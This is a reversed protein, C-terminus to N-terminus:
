GAYTAFLDMVQQRSYSGTHMMLIIGNKGIVVTTPFSDLGFGERLKVTDRMMPFSLGMDNKLQTIAATSDFPTVTLLQVTSGYVGYAEEFYPFEAKCPQCDVYWFNLIVANKNQLLQSLTHTQGDTDTLTFDGMVSGTKYQAQSHDAPDIVPISTLTINATLSRFTYSDRCDYGAPLTSLIVRYSSGPVLTVVAKGNSGTVASGSPTTDEDNYVTVTVGAVTAGKKGRITVTFDVPKKPDESSCRSCLYDIYHHGLASGDTASCVSCTRPLVCTADSFRHEAPSLTEAYVDSCNSCTYTTTGPATCTPSIQETVRYSHTCDPSSPAATGCRTCQGAVFDHGLAPSGAVQCLSCHAPETCTAATFSHGKAPLNVRLSEGCLTCTSEAYGGETCTSDISVTTEMQHDCVPTTPVTIDVDTTTSASTTIITTTTPTTPVTQCGGTLLMTLVLTFILNKRM